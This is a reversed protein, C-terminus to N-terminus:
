PSIKPKAAPQATQMLMQCKSIFGPYAGDALNQVTLHHNMGGSYDKQGQCSRYLIGVQGPRMVSESLQVYLSDAHLTVEGSVAIGAKNSRVTYQDKTLGLDDALAKLFSRGSNHLTAKDKAGADSYENIAKTLAALKKLATPHPM